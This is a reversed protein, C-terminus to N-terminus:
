AFVAYHMGRKPIQKIQMSTVWGEQKGQNLQALHKM